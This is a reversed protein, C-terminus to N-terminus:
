DGCDGEYSDLNTRCRNINGVAILVIRIYRAILCPALYPQITRINRVDSISSVAICNKMRFVGSVNGYFRDDRDTM